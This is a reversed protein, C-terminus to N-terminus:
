PGSFRLNIATQRGTPDPVDLAMTNLPLQDNYTLLKGRVYARLKSATNTDHGYIAGGDVFATAVNIQQREGDDDVEYASRFFSIEQPTQLLLDAADLGCTERDFHDDCFPVEIPEAEATDEKRM